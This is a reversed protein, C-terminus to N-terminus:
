RKIFLMVIDIAWRCEHVIEVCRHTVENSHKVIDEISEEICITNAIFQANAGSSAKSHFM